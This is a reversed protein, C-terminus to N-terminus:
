LQSLRWLSQHVLVFRISSLAIRNTCVYTRVHAKVEGFSSPKYAYVRCSQDGGSILTVVTQPAMIVDYDITTKKIQLEECLFRTKAEVM